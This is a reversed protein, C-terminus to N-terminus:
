MAVGNISIRSETFRGGIGALTLLPVIIGGIM